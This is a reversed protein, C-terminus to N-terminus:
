IQLENLSSIHFDYGINSDMALHPPRTIYISSIGANNAATIDHPSDGVMVGKNHPGMGMRKMALKLPSPNPKWGISDNCCIVVDFWSSIGLHDLIPFTLHEQCHTVLGIPLDLNSIFNSDPFLFTSKARNTPDEISHYTDWFLEPDIGISKLYPSRPGHIGYWIELIQTETLDYEIQEGVSSFISSTYSPDTDILTGDLDFLWFDYDPLNVM